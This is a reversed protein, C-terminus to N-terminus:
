RFLGKQWIIYCTGPNTPNPCPCRQPSRRSGRSPYATESITQRVHHPTRLEWIQRNERWPESQFDQNKTGQNTTHVPKIRVERININNNSPPTKSINQVWTIQISLPTFFAYHLVPSNWCFSFCRIAPESDGGPEQTDILLSCHKPDCAWDELRKAVM